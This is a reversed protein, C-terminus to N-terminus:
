TEEIKAVHQIARAPDFGIAKAHITLRDPSLAQLSLPVVPDDGV